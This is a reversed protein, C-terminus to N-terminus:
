KVKFTFGGLVTGDESRQIISCNGSAADPNILAVFPKPARGEFTVGELLAGRRPAYVTGADLTRRLSPDAEVLRAIEAKDEESIKVRKLGAKKALKSRRKGFVVGRQISVAARDIELAFAGADASPHLPLHVAGVPPGTMPSPNVATMNKLGCKKNGRVLASVNLETTSISDNEASIIALLAVTSPAAAPAPWEFGVIQAQGGEIKRIVEHRVRM